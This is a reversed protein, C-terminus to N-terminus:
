QQYNNDFRVKIINNDEQDVLRNM